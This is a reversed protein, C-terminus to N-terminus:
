REESKKVVFYKEKNNKDKVITIKGDDISDKSIFARKDYILILDVIAKKSEDYIQRCNRKYLHIFYLNFSKFSYIFQHIKNECEFM